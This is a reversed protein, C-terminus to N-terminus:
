IVFLYFLLGSLRPLSADSCKFIFINKAGNEKNFLRILSGVYLSTEVPLAADICFLPVIASTTLSSTSCGWSKLLALAMHPAQELLGWTDSLLIMSQSTDTSVLPETRIGPMALPLALTSFPPSSISADAVLHHFSNLVRGTVGSPGIADLIMLNAYYHFLTHNARM